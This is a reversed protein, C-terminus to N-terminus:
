KRYFLSFMFEDTPDIMEMISILQILYENRRCHYHRIEKSWNQTTLIENKWMKCHVFISVYPLFPALSALQKAKREM